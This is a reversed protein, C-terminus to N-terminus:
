DYLSLGRPKTASPLSSPSYGVVDLVVAGSPPAAVVVPPPPRAPSPAPPPPPPPAPPPPAPPPMAPAPAAPTAVAPTVLLSSRLPTSAASAPAMAYQPLSVSEGFVSRQLMALSQAGVATVPQLMTLSQSGVATVAGVARDSLDVVLQGLGSHEILPTALLRVQMCVYGAQMLVSPMRENIRALCRLMLAITINVLAIAAFLAAMPLQLTSQAAMRWRQRVGETVIETVMELRTQGGDEPLPLASLRRFTSPIQSAASAADETFSALRGHTSEVCSSSLEMLGDSMEDLSLSGLLSVAERASATARMLVGAGRGATYSSGDDSISSGGSAATAAPDAAYASGGTAASAAVSSSGSAVSSSPLNVLPPSLPIDVVVQHSAGDGRGDGAKALAAYPRPTQPPAVTSTATSTPSPTPLPEPPRPAVHIASSAAASTAQRLQDSAVRALSVAAAADALWDPEDDAETEGSSASMLKTLSAEVEELAARAEAAEALASEHSRGGAGVTSAVEARTANLHALAASHASSLSSSTQRAEEGAGRSLWSPVGDSRPSDNGSAMRSIGPPPDNLFLDLSADRSFPAADDAASRSPTVPSEMSADALRAAERWSM